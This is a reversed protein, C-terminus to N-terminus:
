NSNLDFVTSVAVVFSSLLISGWFALLITTMMGPKTGPSIDGYGVTTLTVVTFWISNFYSDFVPDGGAARFFPVEFISIIYAFFFVTGFFM